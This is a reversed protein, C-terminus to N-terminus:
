FPSLSSSLQTLVGRARSGPGSLHSCAAECAQRRLQFGGEGRGTRDHHITGELQLGLYDERV